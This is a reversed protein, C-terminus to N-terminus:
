RMLEYPGGKDLARLYAPRAQIRALWALLAPRAAGVAGRASAAEVAFSMQVDAASFAAGAFWPAKTLEAEMYDLQATLNPDIVTKRVKAAIARTVPKLFFPVPAKEIRSFILSLLLPPMASGEAFHLWYTYRLRDPSDQPPVLRGDGYRGVLYEIIAGSEAVTLEGDTIVPSKGLPHIARLSAPALMTTPDREYRVVGYDLGLEELLWLIRQSRSNNLHHVTIM